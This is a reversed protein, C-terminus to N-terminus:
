VASPEHHRRPPLPPGECRLVANREFGSSRGRRAASPGGRGSAFTRPAQTTRTDDARADDTRAPGSTRTRAALADSVKWGQFAPPRPFGLADTLPPTSPDSSSSRLSTPAKARVCGPLISLVAGSVGVWTASEGPVRAAKGRFAREGLLLRRSNASANELFRVGALFGVCDIEQTKRPEGLRSVRRGVSM